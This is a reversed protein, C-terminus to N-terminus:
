CSLSHLSVPVEKAPTDGADQTKDFSIVPRQVFHHDGPLSASIGLCYHNYLFVISVWSTQIIVEHKLLQMKLKFTM